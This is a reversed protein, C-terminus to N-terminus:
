AESDQVKTPYIGRVVVVLWWWVDVLHCQFPLVLYRSLYNLYKSKAKTM